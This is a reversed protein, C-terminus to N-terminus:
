DLLTIRHAWFTVEGEGNYASLVSELRYGVGELAAEVRASSEWAPFVIYRPEAQGFAVVDEALWAPTPWYALYLPANFLYFGYEWGLWHHYLVSGEPLGRMFEAVQEIGDYTGQGAGVPIEGAVARVAPLALCAVLVVLAGLKLWRRGGAGDVAVSAIRGVLIAMLPVMPLLYRDWVPFAWLWHISLYVLCFGLLAIDILSGWSRRRVSRGVLWLCGCALGALLAPSGVLYPLWALWGRLRNGVEAPWIFRLGGYGMVGTGWFSQAGQAIRVADWLWIVGIIILFDFIFFSLHLFSVRASSRNSDRYLYILICAIALPLWILGTQKTAVALGAFLGAWGPRGELALVCGGLGLAVMLPDIFGTASFLIAFPSLAAFLMAALEALPSRYFGRALRGVLAVTVVGALLNPLRIAWEAAGLQFPAYPDCGLLALCGYLLYPLLPPKYAPVSALWPDRGSFILLGWHGYLAEDPHLRHAGMVALRLGWALL